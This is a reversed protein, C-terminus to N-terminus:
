RSVLYSMVCVQLRPRVRVRVLRLGLWSVRVGDRVRDRVRDRVKDRIRVMVRVKVRVRVGM